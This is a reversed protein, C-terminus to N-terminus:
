GVQAAGFLADCAPYEFMRSLRRIRRKSIDRGLNAGAFRGDNAEASVDTKLTKALECNAHSFRQAPGGYKHM